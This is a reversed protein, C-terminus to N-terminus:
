FYEPLRILEPINVLRLRLKRLSIHISSIEIPKWGFSSNRFVRQGLKLEKYLGFITKISIIKSEDLGYNLDAKGIFGGVEQIKEANPIKAASLLTSQYNTM